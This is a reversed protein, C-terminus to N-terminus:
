ETKIEVLDVELTNAIGNDSSDIYFKNIFIEDGCNGEEVVEPICEIHESGTGDEKKAICVRVESLFRGASCVLIVDGKGDGLQAKYSYELDSKMVSGGYNEHVLSPTDLFHNLTTEFYEKQTLGSCTGHKVWEHEWFSMHDRSNKSSKVNPWFKEFRQEGIDYVVEPDFKENSCSSPWSGDQFQPWMGHITLNIRFIDLPKECGSFGDHRHKYCFEPQWSMSLVYFDFLERQNSLKLDKSADHNNQVPYERKGRLHIQAKCTLSSLLVGGVTVLLARTFSRM